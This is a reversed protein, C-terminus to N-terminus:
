GCGRGCIHGLFDLSKYGVFCKTPRATLGANRLKEFVSTLIILHEEWSETYVLVDDIYNVVNAQGELLKRMMRTFIAPANVLGFPLVKFQFLGHSTIFATKPRDSIQVPIQWYGKSLDIKTFYKATALKTMLEDPNPIPEPDFVTIKNLKRFDVCFRNTGDPKRVLVIPSAYPSESKEIVDMSIMTELENKVTNQVALPVPYARSRVPCETTLHIAHYMLITSGPLDTLVDSYKELLKNVEVKEIENRESSVNVDCFNEKQRLPLLDIKTEVSSEENDEVVSVHAKTCCVAAHESGTQGEKANSGNAENTNERSVYKKLLNAHFTKGNGRIDIKYDNQAVKGVIRFPGKWQMTLKNHETPLLLLVDDNVKFKREKARANYYRRYRKSSKALEEQAIKCTSDLRERLDVIYQYTTKVEDSINTGTWLEKLICLPGRVTRGYLLEFPSFGLSEQPAERYAFLLAPLYRDWDSPRESCMRRLMRKLTGNFKEVLGNCMPHYPSTNM